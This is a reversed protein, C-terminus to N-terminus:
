GYQVISKEQCSRRIELINEIIFKRKDDIELKKFEEQHKYNLIQNLLTQNFFECTKVGSSIANIIEPTLCSGLSIAIRTKLNPNLQEKQLEILLREAFLPSSIEGM